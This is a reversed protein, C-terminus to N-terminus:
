SDEQLTMRADSSKLRSIRALRVQEDEVMLTLIPQRIRHLGLAQGSKVNEVSEHEMMWYM